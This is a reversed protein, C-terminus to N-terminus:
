AARPMEISAGAIEELVALVKSVPDSTSSYYVTQADRRTTVLRAHRLKALHQSLASQNLGVMDSLSGVSYEGTQLITLIAVRKANAMASLLQAGLKAFDERNKITLDSM